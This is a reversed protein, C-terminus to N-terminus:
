ISLFIDIAYFISSMLFYLHIPIEELHFKQNYYYNYGHHCRAFLNISNVLTEAFKQPDFDKGIGTISGHTHFDLHVQRFLTQSM